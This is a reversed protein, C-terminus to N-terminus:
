LPTVAFPYTAPTLWQREPAVLFFFPCFKMLLALLLSVAAAAAALGATSEVAERAGGLRWKGKM